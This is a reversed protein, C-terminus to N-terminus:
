TEYFCIGCQGKKLLSYSTDNINIPIQKRMIWEYYVTTNALNIEINKSNLGNFTVHFSCRFTLLKILSCIENLPWSILILHTINSFWLWNIYLTWYALSSFHTQLRGYQIQYPGTTDWSFWVVLCVASVTIIHSLVLISRGRHYAKVDKVDM